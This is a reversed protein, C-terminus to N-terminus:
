YQRYGLLEWSNQRASLGSVIPVIGTVKLMM